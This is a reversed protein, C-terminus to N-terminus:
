HWRFNFDQTKTALCYQYYIYYQLDFIFIANNSEPSNLKIQVFHHYSWKLKNSNTEITNIELSFYLKFELGKPFRTCNMECSPFGRQVSRTSGGGGKWFETPSRTRRREAVVVMLRSSGLANCQLPTGKATWFPLRSLKTVKCYRIYEISYPGWLVYNFFFTWILM